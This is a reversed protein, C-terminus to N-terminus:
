NWSFTYSNQCPSSGPTANCVDNWIDESGTGTFDPLSQEQYSYPFDVQPLYQYVSPNDLVFEGNGTCDSLISVFATDVTEFNAWTAPLPFWASYADLRGSNKWANGGTDQQLAVTGTGPTFATASASAFDVDM